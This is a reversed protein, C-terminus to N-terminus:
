WGACRARRGRSTRGSAARNGTVRAVDVLRYLDLGTTSPTFAGVFRGRLFSGLLLAFPLTIGEHALLLQWRRVGSLVALFPLLLAFAVFSPELQMVRRPLEDIGETRAVLVLVVVLLGASIARKLLKAKGM